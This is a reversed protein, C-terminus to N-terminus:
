RKNFVKKSTFLNEKISQNDASYQNSSNLCFYSILGLCILTISIFIFKSKFKGSFKSDLKTMLQTGSTANEWGELADMDFDNEMSKREISFKEREDRSERYRNIEERSLTSNSNNIKKSNM